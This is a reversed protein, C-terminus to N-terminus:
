AAATQHRLLEAYLRTFAAASEAWSMDVKQARATLRPWVDTQQYLANAWSMSNFLAKPSYDYYIFGTGSDSEPDYDSVIQQVGGRSRVVPVTAFRM